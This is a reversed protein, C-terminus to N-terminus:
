LASEAQYMGAASRDTGFADLRPKLTIFYALILMYVPMIILSFWWPFADFYQTNGTSLFLLHGPISVTIYFTIAWYGIRRPWSEMQFTEAFARWRGILAVACFIMLTALCFDVPWLLVEGVQAAGTAFYRSVNILHVYFGGTILILVIKEAYWTRNSM